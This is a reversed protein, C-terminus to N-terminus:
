QIESSWQELRQMFARTEEEQMINVPYTKDLKTNREEVVMELIKNNNKDMLKIFHMRGGPKGCDVAGLQEKMIVVPQGHGVETGSFVLPVIYLRETTLALAYYWCKYSHRGTNLRWYAYVPVSQAYEPVVTQLIRNVAAKEQSNVGKKEEFSTKIWLIVFVLVFIGIFLLVAYDEILKDLM